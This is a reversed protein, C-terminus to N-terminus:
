RFTLFVIEYVSIGDESEPLPVAVTCNITLVDILQLHNKELNRKERRFFLIPIPDSRLASVSFRVLPLAHWHSDSRYRRHFSPLPFSSLSNAFWLLPFSRNPKALEESLPISDFVPFFLSCSCHFHPYLPSKSERARWRETIPDRRQSQWKACKALYWSIQPAQAKGNWKPGKFAQAKVWGSLENVRSINQAPSNILLKISKYKSKPPITCTKKQEENHKFSSSSPPFINM